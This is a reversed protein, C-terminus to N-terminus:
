EITEDIRTLHTITRDNCLLMGSCEYDGRDKKNVPKEFLGVTLLEKGFEIIDGNLRQLIVFFVIFLYNNNGIM